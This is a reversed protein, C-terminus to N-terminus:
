LEGAEVTKCSDNLLCPKLEFMKIIRTALFTQMEDNVEVENRKGYKTTVQKIKTVKYSNKVELDQFSVNPLIM